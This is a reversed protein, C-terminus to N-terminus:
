RGPIHRRVVALSIFVLVMAAGFTSFYAPV